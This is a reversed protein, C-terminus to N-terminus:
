RGHLIYTSNYIKLQKRLSSQFMRPLLSFSSFETGLSMLIEQQRDKRRTHTLNYFWLFPRESSFELALILCFRTRTHAGELAATSSSMFFIMRSNLSFHLSLFFGKPIIRRHANRKNKTKNENNLTPRKSHSGSRTIVEAQPQPGYTSM